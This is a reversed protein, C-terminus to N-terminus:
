QSFPANINKLELMSEHNEGIGTSYTLLTLSHLFPSLNLLFLSSIPSVKPCTASLTPPIGKKICEIIRRFDSEDHYPFKQEMIEYMVMGLSYIDSKESWMGPSNIIEPAVWRVTGTTYDNVQTSFKHKALGFDTLLLTKSDNRVLFNQSKIDRHLIPPTHNHLTMLARTAQICFSFQLDLPLPGHKESYDHLNGDIYEMVLWAENDDNLLCFGYVKCIHPVHTNSSQISQIISLESNFDEM